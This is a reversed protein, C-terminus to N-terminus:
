LGATKIILKAAENSADKSGLIDRVKDFNNIMRIRYDIDSLLILAENCLNDPTFDNQIFEKVIEDGLLINVIGLKDIKAIPKLLYYNIPFTKYFILHPTGLLACEMTSTGAKTLVLDSNLILHYPKETTLNCGILKERFEDFVHNLGPAISINITINDIHKRIEAITDILVPIHNKIEDKRSGPLITIVKKSSQIIESKTNVEIFEKIRKVLPHGTFESKVKYKNYFDVEFPFLVLMLDIYKKVKIVRKEHWAWLQPSIYYIIKKDYFKRIEEALRLNFGPYDVLIVVDPSNTKIFEASQKIAKKFFYYKKVVDTFGVTALDKVHYLANLGEAIMLNGGLGNFIIGKGPLQLKMEKILASSHMDGSHEGASIFVSRRWLLATTQEKPPSGNNQSNYDTNM